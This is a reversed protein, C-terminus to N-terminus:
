PATAPRCGPLAIQEWRPVYPGGIFDVEGDSFAAYVRQYWGSDIEEDDDIIGVFGGHTAAIGSNLAFSKGSRSEFLYHLRRASSRVRDEVFQRTDDTSNNDVVTIGVDLAPPVDAAFLSNITRELLARRNFTAVIVDLRM